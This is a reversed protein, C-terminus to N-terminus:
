SAMSDLIQLGHEKTVVRDIIASIFGEEDILFAARHVGIVERGMFLKPGWVGYKECISHDPDELLPYPFKYKDRFKKHKAQNDPSIGYVKYGANKIKNYNTKVSLCQKTCSPSDDKPYFFLVIKQGKLKGLEFQSGSETNTLFDPAPDGVRLHHM